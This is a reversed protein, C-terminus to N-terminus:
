RVQRSSLVQASAFAVAALVDLVCAHLAVGRDAIRGVLARSTALFTRRALSGKAEATCPTCGRLAAGSGCCSM